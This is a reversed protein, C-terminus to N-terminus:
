VLSYRCKESINMLRRWEDKGPIQLVSVKEFRKGPLRRGVVCFQSLWSGACILTYTDDPIPYQHTATINSTHETGGADQVILEGWRDSSGEVVALGWVLGKEICKANCSDKGIEEKRGVNLDSYWHDAPLPKTMLQDWSPRWQKTGANGPEPYMFLLGRIEARMSNVLATWADELSESEYYAPIMESDLLFALGAVKDVPNTSVRMQMEKLVDFITGYAVDDGSQLQRHFRTLLETEYKGDKHKAHMPGHPTDGAIVRYRARGVEQLTWARRFWYRDSDLDGDKLSLPRGLGSLYWVVKAKHYVAGITPVDLKWEEARMDEQQGGVQRLCLVDLWTYEVQLNLMEIRILKLSTDKPIPVPWEHGNIPTWVDVRNEEDMWAHSIPRLRLTWHETIGTCWWPVVRNSYLDWVRRPPLRTEVIRNGVLAKWRMKRDKKEWERLIYRITSWSRTYWIRRLRGYAMGFDYNNAICEKLLSSLSRTLTHSTGLTINLQDLLGQVGLTACPTDALRSSIVPM